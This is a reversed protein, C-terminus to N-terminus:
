TFQTWLHNLVFYNDARKLYVLPATEHYKTEHDSQYKGRLANGIGSLSMGRKRNRRNQFTMTWMSVFKRLLYERLWDITVNLM